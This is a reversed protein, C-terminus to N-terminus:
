HIQRYVYIRQGVRAPFDLDPNNKKLEEPTQRLRKAVQWLSEGETTAYVSFAFEEKPYPAGVTLGGIYRWAKNEYTRVVIKLTAEAETTGDKKRRLNLGCVICDTETEEGDTEVSFAFPLSLTASKYGGDALALLVEAFVAGEIEGKKCAVEARPLVVGKLAYEGEVAPSLLANGSVREVVRLTNTLYRGGDKQQEVTTEVETSFADRAVKINEKTYLFCDACLTYTFLIKSKGREEDVGALLNANKVQVRASAKVDGFAEECPIQM